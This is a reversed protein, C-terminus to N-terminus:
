IHGDDTAGIEAPLTGGRAIITYELVTISQALMRDVRIDEGLLATHARRMLSLWDTLSAEPHKSYWNCYVRRLFRWTSPHVSPLTNEV